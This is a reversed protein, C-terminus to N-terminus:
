DSKERSNVRLAAHVKPSINLIMCKVTGYVGNWTKDCSLGARCYCSYIIVHGIITSAHNCHSNTRWDYVFFLDCTGSMSRM